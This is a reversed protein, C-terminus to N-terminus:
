LASDKQEKKETPAIRDQIRPAAIVIRVTIVALLTAGGEIRYDSAEPMKGHGCRLKPVLRRLLKSLQELIPELAVFWLYM